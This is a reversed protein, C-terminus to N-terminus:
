NILTFVSKSNVLDIDLTGLPVGARDESLTHCKITFSDLQTGGTNYFSYNNDSSMTGGKFTTFKLDFYGDRVTNYWFAKLLVQINANNPYAQKVALLNILVAETGSSSTNDGGWTLFSDDVSARDWGVEINRPPDTISTRTDMDQGNPTDWYYNVLLYDFDDSLNIEDYITVELGSKNLEEIINALSARNLVKSGNLELDWTGNIEFFGTEQTAGECSVELPERVFPSLCFDIKEQQTFFGKDKDYAELTANSIPEIRIRKNNDYDKNTLLFKRYM